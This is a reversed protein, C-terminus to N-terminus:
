KKYKEYREYDLSFHVIIRAYNGDEEININKLDVSSWLDHSFKQWIFSINKGVVESSCNGSPNIDIVSIIFTWKKYSDNSKKLEKRGHWVLTAYDYVGPFFYQSFHEMVILFLCWAEIPYVITQCQFPTINKKTSIEIYVVDTDQRINSMYFERFAVQWDSIKLLKEHYLEYISFKEFLKLQEQSLDKINEM